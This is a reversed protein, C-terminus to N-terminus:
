SSARVSALPDKHIVDADIILMGPSFILIPKIPSLKPEEQRSQNQAKRRHASVELLTGEQGRRRTGAPQARRKAAARNTSSINLLSL